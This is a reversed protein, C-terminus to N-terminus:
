KRRGHRGRHPRGAAVYDAFREELTMEHMLAKSAQSDGMVALAYLVALNMRSRFIPLHRKM